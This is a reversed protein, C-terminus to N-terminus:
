PLKGELKTLKEAHAIEKGDALVTLGKRHDYHTGDQDWLVTLTHGHYRVGDLCFRNWTNDPLLPWIEVTNDARPVLGVVGTIVLDAFTSHNYYRSRGGQGNIWQGTTEDLYEGIYPKGAAHQSEVYTLFADFYDKRTVVSQKYDRLVNALATLTQSTAFPWVAGDWECHGYGHSRFEPSRREATTIGYPAQFGEPDTLQAWATECGGGPEPLDFYWPIFGIEERVGSLNGNDRLVEFFRADPNWLKEETLKRMQEAKADFEDAIKQNGALRAIAAIACANGFMYSNITPRLNKNHRSGSISEEMGDRVDYQWFLGNPGQHEQEWRRYDTVLDNLINTVFHQDQNVLYCSYVAAAFWSSFAHFKPQPGGDHGRLWFLTYDDVYRKNRLWRGEMLHHGAACSITNYDGAWHVPTLFETFVLGGPTQVIHKRFSWWRFYYMEEIERDPCEFLPIETRLWDWSGANPIFNTVNEDEMANFYSIYHAFSDPKLVAFEAASTKLGSLACAFVVALLPRVTERMRGSTPRGAFPLPRGPRGPNETSGILKVTQIV